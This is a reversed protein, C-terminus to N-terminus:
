PTRIEHSMTALFESKMRSARELEVNKSAIEMSQAHLKEEILRSDTVDRANAFRLGGSSAVSAWSLIRWSGNKHLLPERFEPTNPPSWM